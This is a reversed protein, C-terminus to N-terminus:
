LFVALREFGGAELWAHAALGIAIVVGGHFAEPARKFDLACVAADEGSARLGLESEKVIDFGEVIRDAKM